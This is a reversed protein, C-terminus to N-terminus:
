NALVSPKKKCAGVGTQREDGKLGDALGRADIAGDLAVGSASDDHV